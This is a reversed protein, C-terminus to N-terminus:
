LTNKILNEFENIEKILQDHGLMIKNIPSFIKINKPVKQLHQRAQLLYLNPTEGQIKAHYCCIAIMYNMLCLLIPETKVIIENRFDYFVETFLEKPKRDKWQASPGIYHMAQALSFTVVPNNPLKEKAKWYCDIAKENDVFEDFIKSRSGVQLPMIKELYFNGQKMKLIGFYKDWDINKRNEATLGNLKNEVTNFEFIVKSPESNNDFFMLEPVYVKSRYDLANLEFCRNFEDISKDIAGLNYQIIGLHYSAENILIMLNRKIEESNWTGYQGLPKDLQENSITRAKDIDEIADTYEMSNFKSLGRIFFSIPSVQSKIAGTRELTNMNSTFSFLPIRNEENKFTDRNSKHLLCKEYIEIAKRNLKDVESKFSLEESVKFEDLEKIKNDIEKMSLSIQNNFDFSTKLTGILSNIMNINDKFANMMSQTEKMHQDEYQNKIKDSKFQRIAIVISLVTFYAGIISFITFVRQVDKEANNVLLTQREKILQLENYNNEESFASLSILISILTFLIFLIKKM